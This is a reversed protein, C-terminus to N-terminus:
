VPALTAVPSWWSTDVGGVNSGADDVVAGGCICQCSGGSDSSRREPSTPQQDSSPSGGGHCCCCGGVSEVGDAAVSCPGFRCLLPCALITAALYLSLLRTM